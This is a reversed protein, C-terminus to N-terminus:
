RENQWFLFPLFGLLGGLTNSAVDKWSSYRSPLFLQLIECGYSISFSTLLVLTPVTWLTARKKKLLHAGVGMGWPFYLLCNAMMEWGTESGVPLFFLRPNVRTRGLTFDFPFLTTGLILLLGFSIIIQNRTAM